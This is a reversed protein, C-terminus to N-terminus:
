QVIFQTFYVARVADASGLVSDLSTTLASRLGNMGATGGLQASTTQRLDSIVADQIAPLDANFRKAEASGDLSVTLTVEAFHAGGADGLNTTISPVTVAVAPQPPRRAAAAAHPLGPLHVLGARNLGFATGAAVALAVLLIVVVKM